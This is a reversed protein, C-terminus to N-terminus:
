NTQKHARDPKELVSQCLGGGRPFEHIGHVDRQAWAPEVGGLRGGLNGGKANQVREVIRDHARQWPLTHSWGQRLRPAFAWIAQCVLELQTRTPFEVVTIGTSSLIHDKAECAVFPNASRFELCLDFINLHYIGACHAEMQM